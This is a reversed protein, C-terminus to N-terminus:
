WEAFRGCYRLFEVWETLHEDDVQFPSVTELDPQIAQEKESKFRGDTTVRLGLDVEHGDAHHELWLDFREALQTYSEQDVLGAGVNVGIHSLTEDDFL